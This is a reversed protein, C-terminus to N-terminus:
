IKLYKRIAILSSFVGIGIATALQISFILLFNNLFYDFINFGLLLVELKTSILFCSILFIGCTILAALVGAIAGQVLFPSRIFWNSAGVMRMIEIEEKSHYIALRIQNFAISFAIIGLILSIIIGITNIDATISSLKEIAPKKQYYDIKVILDKFSSSNLFNVISAYQGAQWANINLSAFFPNGGVEKLSEMLLQDQQHKQTFKELAKEKSIYEVQKVEPLNSLQEKIKLIDQEALEEKLYVRIDIREKLDTILFQITKQFLFLSTILSITLILIFVTALSITGQRRFDRWGLYILRKFFIFM